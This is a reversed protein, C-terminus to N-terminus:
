GRGATGNRWSENINGDELKGDHNEEKNWTLKFINQFSETVFELVPFTNNNPSEFIKCRSFIQSTIQWGEWQWWVCHAKWLCGLNGWLKLCFFVVGSHLILYWRAWEHNPPWLWLFGNTGRDWSAGSCSGKERSPGLFAPPKKISLSQGTQLVKERWIDKPGTYTCLFGWLLGHLRVQQLFTIEM